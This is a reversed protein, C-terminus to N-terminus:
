IQRSGLPTERALGPRSGGGMLLGFERPSANPGLSGAIKGDEIVLVEDALARIEDLDSSVLLIAAGAAKLALLRSHIFGAAGIDVGRTPEGVVLCRPRRAIERACLLKQQNGGSLSNAPANPVAPRIDYDRIHRAAIDTIAAPVAFGRRAFPPRRHDGLIANEAASFEGILGMGRRDEPIHALGLARRARVDLHAAEYRAIRLSGRMPILGALAAMLESQGNGAVGAVGLIEGERVRFGIDRISVGSVGDAGLGAVELAPAGPKAMGPRERGPLPRGIMLEGLRQADTAATDLTAAIRGARMVSVRDTVALIERLKHTVFLATRGAAALRRLVDFLRESEVPTLV